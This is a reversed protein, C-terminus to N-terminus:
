LSCQAKPFVWVFTLSVLSTGVFMWLPLVLITQPLTNYSFVFWSNFWRLWKQQKMQWQLLLLWPYWWTGSFLLNWLFASNEFQCDVTNQLLFVWSVNGSTVAELVATFGSQKGMCYDLSPVPSSCLALLKNASFLYLPRNSLHPSLSPGAIAQCPKLFRPLNLYIGESLSSFWLFNGTKGWIQGGWQKSIVRAGLDWLFQSSCFRTACLSTTNRLLGFKARAGIASGHFLTFTSREMQQLLMQSLKIGVCENVVM